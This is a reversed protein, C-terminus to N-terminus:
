RNPPSAVPSPKNTGCVATEGVMGPQGAAFIWENYRTKQNFVRLSRDTSTSAVGVIAGIGGPSNTGPTGATRGPLEPSPSASPSPSAKTGPPTAGPMQVEGPRVFRWKGDRSMPDKYARRLFKGKVLVDFSVPLSGNKKQYRSVAEAIQCGRFILEEERADQMVYRWAPVGASM